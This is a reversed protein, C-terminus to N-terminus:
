DVVYFLSAIENKNNKWKGRIRFPVFSTKLISFIHQSHFIITSQDLKRLGNVHVVIRRHYFPIYDLLKLFSIKVFNTRWDKSEKLTTQVEICMSNKNNKTAYVTLSFSNPIWIKLGSEYRKLAVKSLHSHMKSLCVLITLVLYCIEGSDTKKWEM